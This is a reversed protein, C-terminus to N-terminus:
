IFPYNTIGVSKEPCYFLLFSSLVSGRDKEAMDKSAEWSTYRDLPVEQEGESRVATLSVVPDGGCMEMSLDEDAEDLFLCSFLRNKRPALLAVDCFLTGDPGRTKSKVTQV